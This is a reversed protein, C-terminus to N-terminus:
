FFYYCMKGFFFLKLANSAAGNFAELCVLVKKKAFPKIIKTLMWNLTKIMKNNKVCFHELMTLSHLVIESCIM